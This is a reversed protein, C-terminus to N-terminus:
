LLLSSLGCIRGNASLLINVVEQLQRLLSTSCVCMHDNSRQRSTPDVRPTLCEVMAWRDFTASGYLVDRILGAYTVTYGHLQTCSHDVLTEQLQYHQVLQTTSPVCPLCESNHDIVGTVLAFNGSQVSRQAQTVAAHFELVRDLAALRRRPDASLQAMKRRDSCCNPIFLSSVPSREFESGRRYILWILAHTNTTSADLGSVTKPLDTAHVNPLRTVRTQRKPVRVM